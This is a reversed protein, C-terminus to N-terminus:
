AAKLEKYWEEYSQYPIVKNGEGERARRVEPRKGNVLYLVNCRCNIDMSAIGWLHPAQAKAGRFHFYGEEDAEKNDLTRHSSRVDMDLTSNWTKTLTAYKQAHKASEMRSISQVRGAETRAVRKAKVSSFGLTDEIRKALTSYDEGAQLSQGIEINIKRIIENRHNNLLASLTLEAIPNLIAQNITALSPITYEMQVDASYEYTFGSRLYNQLYQDQLLKQIDKYLQKYDGQIQEKLLEMEKQFRNYKYMESRNLSGNLAYKRYWEAVQNNIAKLRKAFVVDIDKEAQEIMEDLYKDIDNQNM